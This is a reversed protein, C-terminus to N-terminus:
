AQRNSGPHSVGLTTVWRGMVKRNVRNPLLDKWPNDDADAVQRQKSVPEARPPPPPPGPPAWSHNSWSVSSSSWNWAWSAPAHDQIRVPAVQWLFLRAMALRHGTSLILGSAAIPVGLTSCAVQHGFALSLWRTKLVFNTLMQIWKCSCPGIM